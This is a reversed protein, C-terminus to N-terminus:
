TTSTRWSSNGQSNRWGSYEMGMSNDLMYEQDGGNMTLDNIRAWNLFQSISDVIDDEDADEDFELLQDEVAEIWDARNPFQVLGSEFDAASVMARTYKDGSNRNVAIPIYNRIKDIRPLEQLLQQGSAKDEILVWDATYEKAHEIIKSKLDPYTMKIMLCHLLDYKWKGERTRRIGWSTCVSPDNMEGTKVGTDWSQAVYLYRRDSEIDYYKLWERCYVKGVDEDTFEGYYFRRKQAASLGQLRKLHGEGMLEANDDPNIQIYAYEEPFELLTGDEPSVGKIFLKYIWHSKRPPNCDIIMKPIIRAGSFLGLTSDNLRTMLKEVVVFKKIESAENIYITAYETGLVSEIAEDTNLGNFWIQSGNPFTASLETKNFLIGIKSLGRAVLVKPFTDNWVSKHLSNRKFRVVLHKSRPYLFCRIIIYTLFLWTKGSRAGGWALIYLIKADSLIKWLQLQKKNYKINLTM